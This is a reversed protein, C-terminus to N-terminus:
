LQCAVLGVTFSRKAKRKLLSTSQSTCKRTPLPSPACRMGACLHAATGPGAAGPSGADGPGSGALGRSEAM